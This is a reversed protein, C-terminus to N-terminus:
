KGREDIFVRYFVSLTFVFLSLSTGYRLLLYVSVIWLLILSCLSCFSTAIHAARVGFLWSALCALMRGGDFGDIPLLNIAALMVSVAFFWEFFPYSFIRRSAWGTVLNTAPGAACLCFEKGFSILSSCIKISAGTKGIELAIVPIKMAKAAILHGTEHVLAATLSAFFVVPPQFVLMITLIALPFFGITLFRKTRTKM